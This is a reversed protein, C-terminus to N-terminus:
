MLLITMVKQKVAADTSALKLLVPPLFLQINKELQADTTSLALKLEVNELLQLENSM